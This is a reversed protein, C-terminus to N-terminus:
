SAQRSLTGALIHVIAPAIGTLDRCRELLEAAGCGIAALPVPNLSHDHRKECELNGHDSVLLLLESASHVGGCVAALFRELSALIQRKQEPTGRHGAIDTLFYEFLCFQVSRFVALLHTAAEAETIAQVDEFGAEGALTHRTLDHFVAEGRLLETKDRTGGFAALTAVTTASRLHVPLNAGPFRVYANAFTCSVGLARLKTFLNEQGILHRLAANPFGGLHM